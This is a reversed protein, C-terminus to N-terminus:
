KVKALEAHFATDPPYPKCEARAASGESYFHKAIRMERDTDCVMGISPKGSQKAVIRALEEDTLGVGTIHIVSDPVVLYSNDVAHKLAANAIVRCTDTVSAETACWTNYLDSDSMQTEVVPWWEDPNFSKDHPVSKGNIIDGPYVDRGNLKGVPAMTLRGGHGWGSENFRRTLDTEAQHVVVLLPHENTPRMDFKIITAAYGAETQVPHGAKAAALNFPKM